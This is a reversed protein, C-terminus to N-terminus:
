RISLSENTFFPKCPIENKGEKLFEIKREGAKALGEEQRASPSASVQVIVAVGDTQKVSFRLGENRVILRQRLRQLHVLADHHRPSHDKPQSRPDHM